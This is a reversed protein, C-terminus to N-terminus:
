ASAQKRYADAIEGASAQWVGDRASIRALADDLYRIRHSMGLIWPRIGLGFLRGSSAGEEHLTDFAEGAIEPYRPMPMRRMWLLHLDDWEIQNPISVLPPATTTLYPQDDNPWDLLYSLGAEALLHTTRPSHGFDQSLWGAPRKGWAESITNLSEAIHAREDAERMKSTIMRNASIGHAVVEWGRHKIEEILQPYRACAMSNVAVTAKLGYRDLLDMIRFIGIRNGYERVSWTRYDPFFNGFEGKFRSDSVADPPPSVEWYELHLLVWFATRAGEPWRLPARAPLPAYGYIDHDMGPRRKTM